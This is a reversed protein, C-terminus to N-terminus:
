AGCADRWMKDLALVGCMARKRTEVAKACCNVTKRPSGVPLIKNAVFYKRILLLSRAWFSFNAVAFQRKRSM